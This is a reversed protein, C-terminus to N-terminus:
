DNYMKPRKTKKKSKSKSKPIEPIEKKTIPELAESINNVIEDIKQNRIEHLIEGTTKSEQEDDDKFLEKVGNNRLEEQEKEWKEMQKRDYEKQWALKEELPVPYYILGADGPKFNDLERYGLVQRAIHEFYDNVTTM